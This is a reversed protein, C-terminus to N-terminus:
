QKCLEKREKDSALASEYCPTVDVTCSHYAAWEQATFLVNCAGACAAKGPGCGVLASALCGAATLSIDINKQEFCGKYSRGCNQSLDRKMQEGAEKICAAYEERDKCVIKYKDRYVEVEDANCNAAMAQSSVLAVGLGFVWGCVRRIMLKQM